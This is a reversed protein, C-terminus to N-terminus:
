LYFFSPLASCPSEKTPKFRLLATEAALGPGLAIMVGSDGESAERQVRELVFLVTPSSMNGHTRLIERSHAMETEGFGLSEGISDLVRRGGAHVVWRHIAALRGEDKLLGVVANRVM